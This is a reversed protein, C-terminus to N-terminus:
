ENEELLRTPITGHTEQEEDVFQPWIAGAKLAKEFRPVDLMLFCPAYRLCWDYVVFGDYHFTTSKRVKLGHPLAIGLDSAEAAAVRLREETSKLETKLDGAEQKAATIEPHLDLLKTYQTDAEGQRKRLDAVEKCLEDLETMRETSM